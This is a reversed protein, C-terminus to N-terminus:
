LVVLTSRGESEEKEKEANATRRRRTAIKSAERERGTWDKRGRKEVYGGEM